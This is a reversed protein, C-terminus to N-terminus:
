EFRIDSMIDNINKNETKNNGKQQRQKEQNMIFNKFHKNPYTEVTHTCALQHLYVKTMFDRSIKKCKKYADEVRNSNSGQNQKGFVYQENTQKETAKPNRSTKLKYIKRTTNQDNNKPTSPFISPRRLHPDSLTPHMLRFKNGIKSIQLPSSEESDFSRNYISTVNQTKMTGIANLLKESFLMKKANRSFGESKLDELTTLIADPDKMVDGPDYKRANINGYNVKEKFYQMAKENNRLEAPKLKSIRKISKFNEGM